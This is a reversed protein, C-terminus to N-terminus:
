NQFEVKLPDREECITVLVYSTGYPQETRARPMWLWGSGFAFGSLMATKGLMSKESFDWQIVSSLSSFIKLTLTWGNVWCHWAWCEHSMFVVSARERRGLIVDGTRIEVRINGAGNWLCWREDGQSVPVFQVAPLEFWSVLRRRILGWSQKMNLPVEILHCKCLGLFCLKCQLSVWQLTLSHVM